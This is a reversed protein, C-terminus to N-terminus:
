VIECCGLCAKELAEVTAPHENVYDSIIGRDTTETIESLEDVANSFARERGIKPQTPDFTVDSPRRKTSNARSRQASSPQSEMRQVEEIM